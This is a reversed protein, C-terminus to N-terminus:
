GATDKVSHYCHLDQDRYVQQLGRDVIPRQERGANATGATPEGVQDAAVEHVDDNTHQGGRLERGDLPADLGIRAPERPSLGISPVDLAVLRRREVGGSRDGRDSRETAGEPRM